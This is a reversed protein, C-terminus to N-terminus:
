ALPCMSCSTPRVGSVTFCKFAQQQVWHRGLDPEIEAMRPFIIHSSPTEPIKTSYDETCERVRDTIYWTKLDTRVTAHEVWLMMRSVASTMRVVTEPSNVM